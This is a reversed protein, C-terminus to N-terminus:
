FSLRFFTFDLKRNLKSSEAASIEIGNSNSSVADTSRTDIVPAQSGGVEQIYDTERETATPTKEAMTILFLTSVVYLILFFAFPLLLFLPLDSPKLQQLPVFVGTIWL